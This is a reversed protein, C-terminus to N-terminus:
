HTAGAAFYFLFFFSSFFHFFVFVFPFLIFFFFIQPPPPPHPARPRAGGQAHPLMSRWEAMTLKKEFKRFKNTEVLSLPEIQKSFTQSLFTQPTLNPVGKKNKM